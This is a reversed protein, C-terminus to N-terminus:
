GWNRDLPTSENSIEGQHCPPFVRALLNRVFAEPQVNLRYYTQNAARMREALPRDALLRRCQRVCEEPTQFPLYNVEPLFPEPFEFAFPQSVLACGAALSEGLKYGGSGDLGHSNVAILSTRLQNAYERKKVKRGLLADPAGRAAFDSHLLGILDTSGFEARLARVIAVRQDNVKRRDVKPGPEGPWIRTQFVVRSHLPDSPRHELASVNLYGLIHEANFVLRKLASSLRRVGYTGLEASLSTLAAKGSLKRSGNTFCGFLIGSPLIKSRSEKPLALLADPCYNRKFYLEVERLTSHDFLDNRDFEELAIKREQGQGTERVNWRLIGEMSSTSRLPELILSLAGTRTLAGIGAILSHSLELRHAPSVFWRIVYAPKEDKHRNAMGDLKPVPFAEEVRRYDEIARPRNRPLVPVVISNMNTALGRRRQESMPQDSCM